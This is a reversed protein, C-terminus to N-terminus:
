ENNNKAKVVLLYKIDINKSDYVVYENFALYSKIDTKFEIDGLPVETNENINDLGLMHKQEEELNCPQNQGIGRVSTCNNTELKLEVFPDKQKSEYEKGM